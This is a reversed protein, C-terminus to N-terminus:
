LAGGAKSTTAKKKRDRLRNLESARSRISTLVSDCDPANEGMRKEKQKEESLGEFNEMQKRCNSIGRSLSGSIDPDDGILDMDRVSDRLDRFADEGAGGECFEISRSCSNIKSIQSELKEVIKQEEKSVCEEKLSAIKDIAEQLQGKQEKMKENAEAIGSLADKLSDGKVQLLPEPTMKGGVLGLLSKPMKYLGGRSDDSEDDPKGDGELEEPEVSSLNIGAKVGLAALQNNLATQQEKLAANQSSLAQAMRQTFMQISQNAKMVYDAKFSKAAVVEQKLKKGINELSTRCGNIGRCSFNISNGPQNGPIAMVIESQPTNGRLVGDLERGIERLCNERVQSGGNECATLTLPFNTGTLVKMAKTYSNNYEKLRKRYDADAKREQALVAEQAQGVETSRKQRERAVNQESRKFCAKANDLVFKGIDLGKGNFRALRKGFRREIDDFSLTEVSQPGSNFAKDKPADAFLEDLVQQLAARKGAARARNLENDEIVNGNGIFQNQEYRCLVYDKLKVPAGNKECRWNSESRKDFCDRALVVKLNETKEELVKKQNEVARNADQTERLAEDMGRVEEDIEKAIEEFGKAGTEPDGKLRSKVEDVQQKRDKIQANLKGVDSQMRSLNKQYESSLAGIQAALASAQSNLCSIQGQVADLKAKQCVLGDLGKQYETMRKDALTASFGGEAQFMKCDLNKSADKLDGPPSLVCSALTGAASAFTSGQCSTYLGSLAGTQIADFAGSNQFNASDLAGAELRGPPVVVLSAAFLLLLVGRCAAGGWCAARLSRITKQGVISRM